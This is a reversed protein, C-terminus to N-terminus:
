DIVRYRIAPQRVFALQNIKNLAQKIAGETCEYTMIVLSVQTHSPQRPEHQIVSAISVSHEALVSAIGALTGPINEVEFRTYFRGPLENSELQQVRPATESWLELTRFTIETRGVATDIMDAVVASATPMRGAGQGHFFVDGVADGVVTLANYPGRVEALPKGQRVLTPSVHLELREAGSSDGSLKAIALLKIVFGLQKAYRMDDSDIQDIGIRPIDTWHIRAGFALHALIALKQAADSGDVDMTPDSEAYGMAQASKLVDCYPKRRETMESLIFNSTGNLIGQISQIQNASFCHSINSIIPIGGAVAAEFAITRQLERARDFLEPGHEALLAKNATVVHKGAQLLQLMITRAPELGGVLQAVVKIERNQLVEDLDNTLIGSPLDADRSKTLDRVVAKELWLTQGAHRATRDGHDLLLRAVGTGVTGMGVIAVKTKEM